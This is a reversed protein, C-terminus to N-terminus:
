SREYIRMIGGSRRPILGAAQLDRIVFRYDTGGRALRDLGRQRASMPQHKRRGKARVDSGLSLAATSPRGSSKSGGYDNATPKGLREREERSRRTIPSTLGMRKFAATMTGVSVGYEEAIDGISFGEAVLGAIVGRDEEGIM